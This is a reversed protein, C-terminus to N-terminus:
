TELNGSISKICLHPPVLENGKPNKEESLKKLSRGEGFELREGEWYGKHPALM